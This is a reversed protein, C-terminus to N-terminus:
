KAPIAQAEDQARSQIKASIAPLLSRELLPRITASAADYEPGDLIIQWGFPQVAVTIRRNEPDVLMWQVRWDTVQERVTVTRETEVPAALVAGLPAPTPTPTPEACATGLVLAALFLAITLKM